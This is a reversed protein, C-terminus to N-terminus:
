FMRVFPHWNPQSLAQGSELSEELNSERKEAANLEDRLIMQYTFVVITLWSIFLILIGFYRM